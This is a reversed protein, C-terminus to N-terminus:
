LARPYWAYQKVYMLSVDGNYPYTFAPPGPQQMISEKNSQSHM